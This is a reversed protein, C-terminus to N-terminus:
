KQFTVINKVKDSKHKLEEAFFEPFVRFNHKKDIEIWELYEGNAGGTTKHGNKIELLKKDPKIYFFISIEHVKKNESDPFFNEHVFGMRDIEANIGTEEYVERLVAEELTENIKVRGGVSYYFEDSPNRAMLVKNDNQIIAGVRFNFIGKETKFTCDM